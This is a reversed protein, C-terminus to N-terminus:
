KERKCVEEESGAFLGGALTGCVDESSAEVPVSGRLLRPQKNLVVDVVRFHKQCLFGNEAMNLKTAERWKERLAAEKPFRFLGCGNGTDSFYEGCLECKRHVMRM